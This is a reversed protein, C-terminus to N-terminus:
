AASRKSRAGRVGVGLLGIALAIAGPLSLVPVSPGGGGPGLIQVGAIVGDLPVFTFGYEGSGLDAPLRDEFVCYDAGLTGPLIYTSSGTCSAGALGTSDAFGIFSFPFAYVAVNYTTIPNLGRVDFSRVTGSDQLDNTSPGNTSGGGTSSFIVDVTTAVGAEDLLSTSDVGSDVGNWVTGAGSYVGDAGSHTTDNPPDGNVDINVLQAAAPSSLLFAALCVPLFRAATARLVWFRM